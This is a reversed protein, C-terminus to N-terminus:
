FFCRRTDSEWRTDLQPRQFTVEGQRLRHVLHQRAPHPLWTGGPVRLVAHLHLVRQAM